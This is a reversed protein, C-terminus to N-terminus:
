HSASLAWRLFPRHQGLSGGPALAFRGPSPHGRGTVSRDEVAKAGGQVQGRGVESAVTEETVVTSCRNFLITRFPLCRRGSGHLDRDFVDRRNLFFHIELKGPGVDRGLEVLGIGVQPPVHPELAEAGALHRARDDLAHVLALDLVFDRALQDLRRQALRDLFLLDLRHRRGVTSLRSSFDPEGNLNVRARRPATAPPARLVVRTDLQGLALGLEGLLLDGLRQLVVAAAQGLVLRDLPAGLGRGGVHQHHLHVALTPSCLILRLCSAISRSSSVPPASGPRAVRSRPSGISADSTSTLNVSASSM